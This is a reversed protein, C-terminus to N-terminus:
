FEWSFLTIPVIICYGVTFFVHNGHYKFFPSHIKNIHFFWVCFSRLFKGNHYTPSKFPTLHIEKGINPSIPILRVINGRLLVSGDKRILPLSHSRHMSRQALERQLTLFETLVLYFFLQFFFLQKLLFPYAM